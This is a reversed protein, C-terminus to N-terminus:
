PGTGGKLENLERLLQELAGIDLQDSHTPVTRAWAAVAELKWVRAVFTAGDGHTPCERCPGPNQSREDEAATPCPCLPHLRRHLEALEGTVRGVEARLDDFERLLAAAGPASFTYPQRDYVVMALEDRMTWEGRPGSM